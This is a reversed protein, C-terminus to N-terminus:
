DRGGGPGCREWVEAIWRRPVDLEEADVARDIDLLQTSSRGEARDQVVAYGTEFTLTIV